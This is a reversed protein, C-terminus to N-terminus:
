VRLAIRPTEHSLLGQRTRGGCFRGVLDVIERCAEEVDATSV